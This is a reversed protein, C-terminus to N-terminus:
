HHQDRPIVLFPVVWGTVSIIAAILLALPISREVVPGALASGIPMGAFNLSMSIAFVRGFWRPDTRRQRLAFLGIDIPGSALGFLVMGALLAVPTQLLICAYGISALALGGAIIPRERGESNIRGAVLGSAVTAVGAVSWLLGVGGADWHFRHLVVVPLAVILFGYPLNATWLTLIVGRLTPHRVVYVLSQWAARLLPVPAGPQKHPERVGLLVAGALVFIGATSLFAGEGGLWAVLLGALAPGAVTALAMSGSDVGNARDWLQRPVVLPFLTRTGSITLPSTLSGIAVIVLLPTPALINALSLAAILVLAASAISLDVLILRLMGYRDLLSGAIPSVVLGPAIALFTAFGALAPSHFRQLVFLVLAVQWLQGGTRALVTAAALQSFGPLGFLRRYSIDNNKRDATLDTKGAEITM